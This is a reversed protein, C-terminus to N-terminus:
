FFHSDYLAVPILITMLYHNLQLNLSQFKNQVHNHMLELLTRILNALVVKVQLSNDVKNCFQLYNNTNSHFSIQKYYTVNNSELLLHRTISKPTM